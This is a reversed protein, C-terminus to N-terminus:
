LVSGKKWGVEFPRAAAGEPRQHAVLTEDLGDRLPGKRSDRFPLLFYRFPIGAKPRCGRESETVTRVGAVTVRKSEGCARIGRMKISVFYGPL